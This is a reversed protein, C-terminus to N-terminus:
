GVRLYTLILEVTQHHLARNALLLVRISSGANRSLTADLDRLTHYSWDYGSHLLDNGTDNARYYRYLLAYSDKPIGVM